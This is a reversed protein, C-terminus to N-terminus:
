QFIRKNSYNRSLEESNNNNLIFTRSTKSIPLKEDSNKIDRFVSMTISDFKQNPIYM